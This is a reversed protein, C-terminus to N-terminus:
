VLYINDPLLGHAEAHTKRLSQSDAASVLCYVDGGPVDVWYKLFHAGYKKQVALDKAHAEAVAEATVKGPGLHHVDLYLHQTGKKGQEAEPQARLRYSHLSIAAYVTLVFILKM